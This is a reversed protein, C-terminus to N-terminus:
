QHRGGIGCVAGPPHHIAAINQGADTLRRVLQGTNIQRRFMQLGVALRAAPM